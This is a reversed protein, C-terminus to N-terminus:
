ARYRRDIEDKVTQLDHLAEELKEIADDISNRPFGNNWQKRSVIWQWFEAAHKQGM